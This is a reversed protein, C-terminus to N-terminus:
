FQETGINNRLHTQVVDLVRCNQFAKVVCDGKVIVVVLAQHVPRIHREVHNSPRMDVSGLRFTSLDVFCM